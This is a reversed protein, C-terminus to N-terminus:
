VGGGLLLIGFHLQFSPLARVSSSSEVTSASEPTVIDSMFREALRSSADVANTPFEEFAKVVDSFSAAAVEVTGGAILYWGKTVDSAGVIVDGPRFFREQCVSLLETITDSSIPPCLIASRELIDRMTPIALSRPHLNVKKFSVLNAQLLKAAEGEELEGDHQLKEIYRRENELVVLCGRATSIARTIEPFADSLSHLTQTALKWNTELEEEIGRKARPHGDFMGLSVNRHAEVFNLALQLENKTSKPVKLRPDSFSPNTSIRFLAKSM